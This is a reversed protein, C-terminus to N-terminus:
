DSCHATDGALISGPCAASSCSGEDDCAECDTVVDSQCDLDVVGCGCDCVGDGYYSRNCSWDDPVNIICLANHNPDIHTRNGATCGETPYNGCVYLLDIGQCSADPIGCGCDCISDRFAAASCTWGSPPPACETTSEPDVTGVCVGHGGCALCRVCSDFASDRCDLDAVGCGCDCEIGDAYATPPCTWGPPPLPQDCAGNLEASILGPCAQVSCSGPADCKDCDEARSSECDSDIAGCGCDCRSGDGYLRASCYWSPPPNPCHANDEPEFECAFPSCGGECVECSAVSADPCDIDVVGCGCNCSGDGYATADCTWRPPIECRSNDNRALSSPCPGNACSGNGFCSDCSQVDGNPCDDDRIGCGCDCAEGDGYASAACTWGEPPPLCRAPDDPDIHGPCAALNCSGAGNCVDCESLEQKSCDLDPAGCGCDCVGDGYAFTNCTWAMPVDHKAGTTATTPGTGFTGSAGGTEGSGGSASTLGGDSGGGAAGSEGAANGDSSATPGDHEVPETRSDRSCGVWVAVFLGAVVLARWWMAM